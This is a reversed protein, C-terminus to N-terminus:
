SKLGPCLNIKEQSGSSLIVESAVFLSSLKYRFQPAKDTFIHCM